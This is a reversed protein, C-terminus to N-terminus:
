DAHRLVTIQKKLRVIEAEAKALKEELEKIYSGAADVSTKHASKWSDRDQEALSLKEEVEKMRTEHLFRSICNDSLAQYGKEYGQQWGSCIAKCPHDFERPKDSQDQSMTYM